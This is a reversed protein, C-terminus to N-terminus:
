YRLPLSILSIYSGASVKWIGKKRKIRERGAMFACGGFGRCDVLITIHFYIIRIYIEKATEGVSFSRELMYEFGTYNFKM